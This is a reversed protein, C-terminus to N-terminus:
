ACNTEDFCNQSVKLELVRMNDKELRGTIQHLDTRKTGSPVRILALQSTDLRLM